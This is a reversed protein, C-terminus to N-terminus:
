TRVEDLREQVNCIGHYRLNVEVKVVNQCM